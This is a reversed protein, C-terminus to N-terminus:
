EGRRYLTVTVNRFGAPPVAQRYDRGLTQQL